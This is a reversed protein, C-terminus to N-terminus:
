LFSGVSCIFMLILHKISTVNRFIVLFNLIFHKVIHLQSNFQMEMSSFTACPLYELIVSDDLSSSVKLIM